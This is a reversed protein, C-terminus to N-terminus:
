DEKTLFYNFLIKKLPREATETHVKHYLNSLHQDMFISITYQFCLMRTHLEKTSGGVAKLM